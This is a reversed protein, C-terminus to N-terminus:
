RSNYFIISASFSIKYNFPISNNEVSKILGKMSEDASTYLKKSDYYQTKSVYFAARQKILKESLEKNKKAIEKIESDKTALFKKIPESINKHIVIESEESFKLIKNVSDQFKKTTLENANFEFKFEQVVTNFLKQSRNAIEELYALTEMTENMYNISQDLDLIDEKKFKKKHKKSSM